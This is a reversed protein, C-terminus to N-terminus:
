RAVKLTWIPECIPLWTKYEIWFQTQSFSLKFDDVTAWFNISYPHDTVDYCLECSSGDLNNQIKNKM